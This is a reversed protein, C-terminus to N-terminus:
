APFREIRSVVFRLRASLVADHEAWAIKLLAPLLTEAEEM